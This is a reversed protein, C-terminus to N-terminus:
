WMLRRGKEWNGQDTRLRSELYDLMRPECRRMVERGIQRAIGRLFSTLDTGVEFKEGLIVFEEPPFKRQSIFSKDMRSSNHVIINRILGAKQIEKWRQVGAISRLDIDVEKMRDTAKGINVFDNRVESEFYSTLSQDPHVYKINMMVLYIDKLFEELGSIILVLSQEILLDKTRLDNQNTATLRTSLKDLLISDNLRTDLTAKPNVAGCRWCARAYGEGTNCSSWSVHRDFRCLPCSILFDYQHYSPNTRKLEATQTRMNRTRDMIASRCEPSVKRLLSPTVKWVIM